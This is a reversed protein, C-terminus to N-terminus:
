PNDKRGAELRPALWRLVRGTLSPVFLTSVHGHPLRWIEPQEWKQWLDEVPQRGAFEAFLDHIGEILLINEKPIVPTSRTLNLRTTDMAEQAPGLAELTERARRWVVPPSCRLRVAPVTLVACAIRADSCATLGALWGGFSFGLLGVSPCGEELLWGTLARIEAVYQAIERSFELCNDEVPRRPRRQLQYPPVLTVVNFGARNFRRALWPFVSHYGVPPYGDLLMIVPREQWREACRYLRGYVTNNEEIQGPRPTPFKFHRPGDFEMRAPESAAPLFDPGNLFELAEELKWKPKPAHRLGVVVSAMQIVSWDIFKALPAIM